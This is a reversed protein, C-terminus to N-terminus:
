CESREGHDTFNAEVPPAVEGTLDLGKPADECGTRTLRDEQTNVAGSAGPGHEVRDFGLWM